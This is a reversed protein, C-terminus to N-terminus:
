GEGEIAAITKGLRYRIVRCTLKVVADPPIRGNRQWNLITTRQVGYRDALYDADVLTDLPPPSSAVSM